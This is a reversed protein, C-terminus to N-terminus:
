RQALVKWHCLVPEVGPDFRYGGFIPDDPGVRRTQLDLDVTRFASLRDELAAGLCGDDHMADIIATAILEDPDSFRALNMQWRLHDRLDTPASTRSAIDPLDDAPTALATPPEYIDSWDTDVPLEDPISDAADSHEAGDAPLTDEAAAGNDSGDGEEDLELMGNSELADQIEDKLQLASLQLLRIAQQLQPTM